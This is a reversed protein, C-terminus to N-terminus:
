LPCISRQGKISAVDRKSQDLSFHESNKKDSSIAKARGRVAGKVVKYEWNLYSGNSM